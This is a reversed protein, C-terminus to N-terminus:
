KFLDSSSNKMFCFRPVHVAIYVGRAEPLIDPLEHFTQRETSSLFCLKSVDHVLQPEYNIIKIFIIFKKHDFLLGPEALIFALFFFDPHKPVTYKTWLLSM